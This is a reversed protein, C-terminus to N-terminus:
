KGKTTKPQNQAKSVSPGAAPPKAPTQYGGKVNKTIQKIRTQVAVRKQSEAVAQRAEPTRARQPRTEKAETFKKTEPTAASGTAPTSKVARNTDTRATKGAGARADLSQKQNAQTAEYRAKQERIPKRIEKYKATKYQGQVARAKTAGKILSKTGKEILKGVESPSKLESYQPKASPLM